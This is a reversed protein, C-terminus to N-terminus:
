TPGCHRGRLPAPLDGCLGEGEPTQGVDLRYRTTFAEIRIDPVVCDRDGKFRAGPPLPQTPAIVHEPHITLPQTKSRQASGPRKPPPDGEAAGNGDPDADPDTEEELGSPKFTPRPTEGKLVAIADRLQQILETLRLPDQALPELQAVWQDVRPTRDADSILPLHISSPM